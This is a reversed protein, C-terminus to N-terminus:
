SNGSQIERLRFTEEDLRDIKLACRSTTQLRLRTPSRETPWETEERGRRDQGVDLRLLPPFLHGRADPADCIQMVFFAQDENSISWHAYIRM